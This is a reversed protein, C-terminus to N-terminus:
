LFKISAFLANVASRAKDNFSGDHYNLSVKVLRERHILLITTDRTPTPKFDIVAMYQFAELGGLETIGTREIKLSFGSQLPIQM